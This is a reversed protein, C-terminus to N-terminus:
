QILTDTVGQSTLYEKIVNSIYYLILYIVNYHLQKTKLKNYVKTILMQQYTTKTLRQSPLM